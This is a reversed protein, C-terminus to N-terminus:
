SSIVVDWGYAAPETEHVIIAAAAGQRAAEEYKYTWRGYYTMARGGFTGTLTPTQYDPDNVLIVVTKGKVDLGAYDNWGLQPANIGYGVFVVDSNDVDVRPLARTTGIVMDSKYALAMPSAGGTFTLPSPTADIEVMPVDQTWKGANGPALGAKTMRSIIYQVTKEEEPSTPARGAYADTSLTRTVDKLTQVPVASAPKALAPAVFLVTSALLLARKM